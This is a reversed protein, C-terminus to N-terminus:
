LAVPSRNSLFYDGICGATTFFFFFFFPNLTLSIICYSRPYISLVTVWDKWMLMWLKLKLFQDNKIKARQHKFIMENIDDYGVSVLGFLETFYSFQFFKRHSIKCSTGNHQKKGSLKPSPNYGTITM